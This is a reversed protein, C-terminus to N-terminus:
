YVTQKRADFFNTRPTGFAAAPSRIGNLPRACRHPNFWLFLTYSWDCGLHKWQGLVLAFYSPSGFPKNFFGLLKIWLNWCSVGNAHQLDDRHAAVRCSGMFFGFPSSSAGM